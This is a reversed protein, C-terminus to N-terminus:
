VTKESEGEFETRFFARFVSHSHTNLAFLFFMKSFAPCFPFSSFLFADSDRHKKKKTVEDPNCIRENQEAWRLAFEKNTTTNKILLTYYEGRVM